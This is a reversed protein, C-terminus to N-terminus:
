ANQQKKTMQLAAIRENSAIDAQKLNVTKEKLMMDALKLRQEFSDGQNLNTAAAQVVKVRHEEPIMQTEVQTKQADAQKSM